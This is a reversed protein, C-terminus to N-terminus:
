DTGVRGPPQSERAARQCRWLENGYPVAILGTIAAFLIALYPRSLRQRKPELRFTPRGRSRRVLARAKTGTRPSCFATAMVPVQELMGHVHQETSTVARRGEAYAVDWVATVQHVGVLLSSRRSRWSV